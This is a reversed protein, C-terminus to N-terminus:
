EMLEQGFKSSIHLSSLRSFNFSCFGVVTFQFLYTLITSILCFLAFKHSGFNREFL